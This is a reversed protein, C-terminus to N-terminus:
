FLDFLRVYDRSNSSHCGVCQAGKEKVSIYEGGDPKWESWLWGNSSYTSGPDKFLFALLQLQGNSSDYLEKVIFSGEPFTGGVPLKGQETLVNKAITNFRVRFYKKHASPGSSRLITDSNKYWAFNQAMNSQALLFSDVNNIGATIATTPITTKTEEQKEKKCTVLFLLVVVISIFVKGKKM